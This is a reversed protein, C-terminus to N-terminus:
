VGYLVKDGYVYKKPPATLLNELMKFNKNLPRFREIAYGDIHREGSTTIPRTPCEKLILILDGHNPHPKQVTEIRLITYIEGKKILFGTNSYDVNPKNWPGNPDDHICIVKM